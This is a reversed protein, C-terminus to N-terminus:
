GVSDTLEIRGRGLFEGGPSSIVLVASSTREAVGVVTARHTRGSALDEM